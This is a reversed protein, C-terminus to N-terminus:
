EALSLMGLWFADFSVRPDRKTALSADFALGDVFAVVPEALLAAPVRPSLGLLTFLRDVTQAAAARRLGAARRAAERISPQPLLSLEILVRIDGRALERELWTWLADIALAPPTDALAAREGRVVQEVVEDVLRTLLTERDHFHYHILAKSVGAEAAVHSLAVAAAGQRAICRLASELIRDPTSPSTM